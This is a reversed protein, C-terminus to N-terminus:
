RVQVNKLLKIVEEFETVPAMCGRNSCLYYVNGRSPIPYDKTFPVAEALAAANEESKLLVRLGPLFEERLYFKLEECVENEASVCVLMASPYLVELLAQIGFSHGVPYEKIVGTVFRVQRRAEERWKDVGTYGAIRGLLMAAASNGSPIAGDYTEKPRAILSEADAATLYFGDREKDEFFEMVQQSHQIATQLYKPEYTSQYLELLGLGYVAYDDLQGAVAAEGDRWRHYLRGSNDTMYECIFKHANKAATLYKRDGLIRYAKAMAAITWGNWSLIVKDDRHLQTRKRRYEYLKKLREDSEDWGFGTKGIRNPISEGEFNGARSIDYLKCFEEGDGKGLISLVEEQTFLYYKGEVGDSDADQGCYFEGEPGTLEQLIYDLTRVAVDRYFNNTTIQFADLYVSALLANDYLMKEFHPALWKDDTSYRSFGGGIHDFIGGLAMSELTHEAMQAAQRDCELVSYQLLFMLNHPVPFKPASGFGGWRRDYQQEFIRVATKVISKDPADSLSQGEKAIFETIKEGTEKIDQRRNKWLHTIQKLIDILGPQGYRPQKPFYTGTFFPKQDPTLVATLPWGGSGTMAQCATMYVADIDPREERDVKICIYDRNLIEAVEEDEFSEHAMVHCWHCTSYGISLFVPKDEAAARSFAESGWPYWNVPNNVHQLLYPSKENKLNNM